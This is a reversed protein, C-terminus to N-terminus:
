TFEIPSIVREVPFSGDYEDYNALGVTRTPNGDVFMQQGATL